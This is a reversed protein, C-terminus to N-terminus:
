RITIAFPESSGDEHVISGSASVCLGRSYINATARASELTDICVNSEHESGADSLCTAKICVAREDEGRHLVLSVEHRELGSPSTGVHCLEASEVYALGAGCGTLVAVLLGIMTRM